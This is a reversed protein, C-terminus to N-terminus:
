CGRDGGGILESRSLRVIVSIKSIEQPSPWIHPFPISPTPRPVTSGLPPFYTLGPGLLTGPPKQTFPKDEQVESPPPVM